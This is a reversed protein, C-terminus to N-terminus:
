ARYEAPTFSRAEENLESVGNDKLIKSVTGVAIGYDEAILALKEGARYRRCIEAQDAANTKRAQHGRIFRRPEGAVWGRDPFSRAAIGTRGGCACWCFGYPVPANTEWWARYEAANM